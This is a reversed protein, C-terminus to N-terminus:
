ERRETNNGRVVPWTAAALTLDEQFIRPRGRCGHGGAGCKCTMRGRLGPSPFRQKVFLFEELDMLVHYLIARNEFEERTVPLPERKMQEFVQGLKELQEGRCQRKM